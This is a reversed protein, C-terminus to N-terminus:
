KAIAVYLMIAIVVVIASILTRCLMILEDMKKLCEEQLKLSLDVKLGAVDEVEETGETAFTCSSVTGTGVGSSHAIATAGAAVIFGNAVLFDVYNEEGDEWLYHDCPNEGKRHNPCKYFVRGPNAETKSVLRVTQRVQCCPCRVLPLPLHTAVAAPAALLPLVLSAVSKGKVRKGAGSSGSHSM